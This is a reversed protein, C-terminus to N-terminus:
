KQRPSRSKAALAELWVERETLAIIRDAGWNALLTLKGRNSFPGIVGDILELKEPLGADESFVEDVTYRQPKRRLTKPM